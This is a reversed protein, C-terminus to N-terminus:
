EHGVASESMKELWCPVDKQARAYDEPLGIDIFFPGAPVAIMSNPRNPGMLFNELSFAGEAPFHQLINIPLDYVGANIFGSGTKGKESFAIIQGHENINIAGYRSVDPVQYAFLGVSAPDTITKSRLSALNIDCISDGNLVFVRDSQALTLADRVAGGTGQPETEVVYSIDLGEYHKGFYAKILDAKYCVALIVHRVGQQRLYTLLWALFPKDAVPAMPKPLNNVVSRLRTGLGGALVIAELM